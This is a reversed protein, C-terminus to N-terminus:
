GALLRGHAGRQKGKGSEEHGEARQEPVGAVLDLDHGRAGLERERNDDAQVTPCAM